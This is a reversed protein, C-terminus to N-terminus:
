GRIRKYDITCGCGEHRNFVGSDAASQTDTFSYTGAREICYECAEASKTGRRLGIGDYTRTVTIEIGSNLAFAMNAKIVKDIVTEAFLTSKQTLVEPNDIAENIISRVDYEYYKSRQAKVGMRAAKNKNAQVTACVENLDSHMEKFAPEWVQMASGYLWGDVELAQIAKALNEGYRYAYEYADDYSTTVSIAKILKGMSKDDAILGKVKSKLEKALREAFDSM